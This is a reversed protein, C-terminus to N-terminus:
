MLLFAISAPSPINRQVGSNPELSLSECDRVDRDHGVNM